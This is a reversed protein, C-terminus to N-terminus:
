ENVVGLYSSKLKEDGLLDQALGEMVIQGNEIVYGRDSLALAQNANQEVLLVTVGEAQINRIVDFVQKTLLPSLGTSPEDLLLLKPESMLARAVALMQQEGGSMSGAMQHIREKLIPFLHFCHELNRKMNVRNKKTYAGLQLNELVSMQAFLKRGEPVQILGLDVIQEQKKREISTGEFEITGSWSRILGSLARLLTTKGAGNAGLISVVEKANVHFSVDRLIQIKGYGANLKSVNLM